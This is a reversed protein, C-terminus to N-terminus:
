DYIAAKFTSPKFSPNIQQFVRILDETIQKHTAEPVQSRNARLAQAVQIFHKKTM